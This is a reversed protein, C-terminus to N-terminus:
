TSAQASPKHRGRAKPKEGDDTQGAEGRASVTEADGNPLIFTITVSAWGGRGFREDAAKRALARLGDTDVATM